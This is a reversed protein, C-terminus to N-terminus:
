KMLTSIIGVLCCVNRNTVIGYTGCSTGVVVDDGQTIHYLAQRYVLKMKKTINVVTTRSRM